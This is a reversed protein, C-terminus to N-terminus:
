IDRDRYKNLIPYMNMHIGGGGRSVIVEWFILREEHIVRYLMATNQRGSCMTSLCLVHKHAIM